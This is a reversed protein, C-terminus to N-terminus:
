RGPNTTTIAFQPSRAALALLVLLNTLMQVTYSSVGQYSHSHKVVCTRKLWSRRASAQSSILQRSSSQLHM